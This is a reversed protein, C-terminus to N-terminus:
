FLGYPFYRLYIEELRGDHSLAALASDLAQALNADQKRVMVTLGEGLFRESVYPGDFLTCCGASAEGSAWFSLQLGDAFVADIKRQKLEELMAARDTFGVARIDPFFAKLMAEHATNSMVGVPRGFLARADQGALEAQRNRVFRAPLMMFPRTFAFRRRMEETAAVGAIIAEGQGGNLATELEAYPLAQIQCKNEIGLEICIARALEVHFGALRGTQDTFNFPPFDTTTLFRLRLLTSLDPRVLRERVDFMVPMDDARATGPVFFTSLVALLYAIILQLGRFDPSSFTSHKMIM